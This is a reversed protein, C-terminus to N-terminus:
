ITAKQTDNNHDAYGIQHIINKPLRITKDKPIRLMYLAM